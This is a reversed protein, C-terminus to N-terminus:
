VARQVWDDLYIKFLGNGEWHVRTLLLPLTFGVGDRTIRLAFDTQFVEQGLSANTDVWVTLPEEGDPVEVPRAAVGQLESLDVTQRHHADRGTATIAEGPLLTGNFAFTDSGRSENVVGDGRRLHLSYRHHPAFHTAKTNVLEIGLLMM